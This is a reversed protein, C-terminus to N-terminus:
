ALSEVYLVGFAQQVRGKDPNSPLCKIRDYEKCAKCLGVM